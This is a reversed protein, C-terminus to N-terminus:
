SQQSSSDCDINKNSGTDFAERKQPTGYAFLLNSPKQFKYELVIQITYITVTDLKLSLASLTLLINGVVFKNLGHSLVVMAYLGHRPKIGLVMEHTKAALLRKSVRLIDTFINVIGALRIRPRQAHFTVLFSFIHRTGLTIM